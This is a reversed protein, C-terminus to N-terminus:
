AEKGPWGLRKAVELLLRDGGFDEPEFHSVRARAELRVATPGPDGFTWDMSRFVGAPVKVEGVVLRTRTPEVLPVSEFDIASHESSPDVPRVITLRRAHVFVVVPDDEVFAVGFEAEDSIWARMRSRLRGYADTSRDFHEAAYHWSDAADAAPGTM